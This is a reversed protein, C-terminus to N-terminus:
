SKFNALFEVLPVIDVYKATNIKIDAADQITITIRMKKMTVRNFVAKKIEGGFITTERFLSKMVFGGEHVIIKTLYGNLSFLGYALSVLTLMTGTLVATTGAGELIVSVLAQINIFLLIAAIAVNIKYVFVTKIVAKQKGLKLNQRNEM